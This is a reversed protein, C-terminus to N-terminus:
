LVLHLTSFGVLWANSFDDAYSASTWYWTAAMDPFVNTNVAPNYRSDDMISQLEHPNPLRWDSQSGYELNNCYDVLDVWSRGSPLGARQWILGTLNDRVMEGSSASEPCTSLAEGTASLCTFSRANRDAYQADAWLIWHLWM